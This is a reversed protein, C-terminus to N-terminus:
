KGAMAHYIKWAYSNRKWPTAANYAGVADWSYGLRQVNQALVWAGVYVNTCPDWLSQATIGYRGLTPLWGSNIQMLGIDYSGNKNLNWASPNHNSEIKAIAGLMQPSLGYYAAAENFCFARANLSGTVLLFLLLIQLARM